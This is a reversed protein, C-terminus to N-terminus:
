WLWDVPGLEEWSLWAANEGEKLVLHGFRVFCLFCYMTLHFVPYMRGRSNM